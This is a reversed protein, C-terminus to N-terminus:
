ETVPLASSVTIVHICLSVSANCWAKGSFEGRHLIFYVHHCFLCNLPLSATGLNPELQILFNGDEERRLWVRWGRLCPRWLICTPLESCVKWVTMGQGRQLTMCWAPLPARAFIRVRARPLDSLCSGWELGPSWIFLCTCSCTGLCFRGKVGLSWLSHCYYWM